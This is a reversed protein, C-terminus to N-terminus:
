RPARTSSTRSWITPTWTAATNNLDVVDGAALGLDAPHGDVYTVFNNQRAHFQAAPHPTCDNAM